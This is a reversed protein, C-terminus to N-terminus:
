HSRLQVLSHRRIERVRSTRILGHEPHRYELRLGPGVYQPMLMAGGVTSGHVTVAVPEPCHRPHGSILLQGDDSRQLLYTRSETEIELTEGSELEELCVGDSKRPITVGKSWSGSVPAAPQMHELHRDISV